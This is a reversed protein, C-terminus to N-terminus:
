FTYLQNRKSSPSKNNTSPRRKIGHPEEENIYIQECMVM